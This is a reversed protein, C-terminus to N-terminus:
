KDASSGIGAADTSEQGVAVSLTHTQVGREGQYPLQLEHGHSQYLDHPHGRVHQEDRIPLKPMQAQAICAPLLSEPKHAITWPQHYDSM